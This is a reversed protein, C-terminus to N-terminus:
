DYQELDKPISIRRHKKDQRTAADRFAADLKRMRIDISMGCKCAYNKKAPTVFWATEVSDGRPKGRPATQRHLPGEHEDGRFHRIGDEPTGWLKDIRRDCRSCHVGVVRPSGATMRYQVVEATDLTDSRHVPAMSTMSAQDLMSM